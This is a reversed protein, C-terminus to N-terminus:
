SFRSLIVMFLKIFCPVVILLLLLLLLTPLLMSCVWIKRRTPEATQNNVEVLEPMEKKKLSMPKKSTEHNDTDGNLSKATTPIALIKLKTAEIKRL